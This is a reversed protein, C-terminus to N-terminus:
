RRRERKRTFAGLDAVLREVVDTWVMPQAQRYLKMSPYWPTDDRVKLWRFDNAFALLTWVPKGLAGAVHAVATDVTILLDLQDIYGSTQHFDSM